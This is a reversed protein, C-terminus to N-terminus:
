IDVDDRTTGREGPLSVLETVGHTVGRFQPLTAIASELNRDDLRGYVLELMRTSSHGMLAAVTLLPVGQQVLWSAFTRRLDNPSVYPVTSPEETGYEKAHQKRMANVADIALRLDRRVNGWHRAVKGRRQEKPVSALRHALAPAIPVRRQRTKRKTGPIFLWRKDLDVTSWDVGEVESSNCGALAALSIWLVRDPALEAVLLDFQESTLWTKRPEYNASFEPWVPLAHLKKTRVSHKLARRVTILEKQITHDKALGHVADDSRRLVVYRDMMELDIDSVFPDGLTKMLRTKKERYMDKTPEARNHMSAIMSDIADGLRQKRGRSEPTAGLEALRLREKAVVRDKTGLSRQVRRGEPTTYDGYWNGEDHRRYIRGM